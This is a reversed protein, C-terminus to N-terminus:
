TPCFRALTIRTVFFVTGTCYRGRYLRTEFRISLAFVLRIRQQVFKDLRDDVLLGNPPTLEDNGTGSCHGRM